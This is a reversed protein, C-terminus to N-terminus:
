GAAAGGVLVIRVVVGDQVHFGQILLLLIVEPLSTLILLLPSFAFQVAVEEVASRDFLLSGHLPPQVVFGEEFLSPSFFFQLLLLLGLSDLLLLVEGLLNLRVQM